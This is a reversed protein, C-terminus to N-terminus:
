ARRRLRPVVAGTARAYTDWAAGHAAAADREEAAATLAGSVLAVATALLGAQSPLRLLQGVLVLGLGLHLPQRIWAYPGATALRGRGARLRAKYSAGALALGLIVLAGGALRAAPGAEVAGARPVLGHAAAFTVGIAVAYVAVGGLDRGRVPLTFRWGLVIALASIALALSGEATLIADV